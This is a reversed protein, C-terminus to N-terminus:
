QTKRDLNAIIDDTIDVGGLLVFDLPEGNVGALRKVLVVTLGKTEAVKNVAVHVEADAKEGIDQAKSQVQSAYDKAVTEGAKQSKQQTEQLEKQRAKQADTMDKTQQLVKFEDDKAKAADTIAKIRAKDADTANPKTSLDILETIEQDTTMMNKERIALKANLAQSFVQLEEFFQKVRPADRYVRQMDVMGIKSKDDDAALGPSSVLAIIFATVLLCAIHYSRIMDINGGRVSAQM